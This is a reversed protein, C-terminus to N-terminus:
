GRQDLVQGRPNVVQTSYCMGKEYAKEYGAIFFPTQNQLPTPGRQDCRMHEKQHKRVNGALGVLTHLENPSGEIEIKKVTVRVTIRMGKLPENWAQNLSFYESILEYLSDKPSIINM